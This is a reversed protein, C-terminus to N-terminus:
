AKEVYESAANKKVLGIANLCAQRSKYGESVAITEGNRAKLRFRFEGIKDLYLEFKPHLIRSFNDQTQDEIKGISNKRVAEIGNLCAEIKSYLDSVALVEGSSAKLIFRYGQSYRQITYKGTAQEHQEHMLKEYLKKGNNANVFSLNKSVILENINTYLQNGISETSKENILAIIVSAIQTVEKDDTILSGPNSKEADVLSSIKILEEISKSELSLTERLKNYLNM